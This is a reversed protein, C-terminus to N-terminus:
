ELFGLGRAALWRMENILQLGVGDQEVGRRERKCECGCVQMLLRGEDENKPQPIGVAGSADPHFTSVTRLRLSPSMRVPM